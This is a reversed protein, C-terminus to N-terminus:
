RGCRLLDFGSYDKLDADGDRDVDCLEFAADPCGPPPTLVGPGNLCQNFSLYDALTVGGDGDIDPRTIAPLSLNLASGDELYIDDIYLPGSNESSGGGTKIFFNLLNRATEDRFEFVTQGDSALLDEPAAASFPRSHLYVRSDDTVNDILIWVNYWVDTKLPLLDEYTGGDNIRLDPTANSMSLEVEFHGFQDPSAVDSMGFSYNQHEHFMFRLFLVRVAGDPILLDRYLYTSDSTVALAQNSEGAPDIAVISTVSAAVWEGQEDVPGPLYDEFDDILVFGARAAPLWVFSLVAAGAVVPPVTRKM